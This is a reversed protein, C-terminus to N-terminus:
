GDQSHERWWQPLEAISPLVTDPRIDLDLDAPEFKGTEVLMGHMGCDQAAAVDSRIDDGIMVLAEAPLDLSAAAAAFFHPDPKGTVVARRGSAYELARVFPGTDLRLGDGARWYRTMGLALLPISPAAMLLRFADNLIAFDWQTGLDGVVVAGVAQQARVPLPVMAFESFEQRTAEPVLPTLSDIGQQHLWSVAARAPTLIDDADVRLGMRALQAVIAGRPRSSTNTIFRHPIGQQQVWGVVDDAGPLPREGQYLVGDLDFLIGQM